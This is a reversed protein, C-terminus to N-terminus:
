DKITTWIDEETNLFDPSDINSIVKIGAMLSESGQTKEAIEVAEAIRYPSKIWSNEVMGSLTVFRSFVNEGGPTSMYQNPAVDSSSFSTQSFGRAELLSEKYRLL